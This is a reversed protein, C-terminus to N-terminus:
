PEDDDTARAPAGGKPRPLDPVVPKGRVPKAEFDSLEFLMRTAAQTLEGGARKAERTSFIAVTHQWLTREGLPVFVAAYLALFLIASEAAKRGIGLV